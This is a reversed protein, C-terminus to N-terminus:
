GIDGLLMSSGSLVPWFASRKARKLSIAYVVVSLEVGTLHNQPAAPLVWTNSSFESSLSGCRSVCFDALFTQLHHTLYFLWNLALLISIAAASESCILLALPLTDVQSHGRNHLFLSIM